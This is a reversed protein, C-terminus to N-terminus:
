QAHAAAKGAAAVISDLDDKSLAAIAKAAVLQRRAAGARENALREAEEASLDNGEALREVLWAPAQKLRFSDVPQQLWDCIAFLNNVSLGGRRKLLNTLKSSDVGAQRAIDKQDLGREELERAVAAALADYDIISEQPSPM